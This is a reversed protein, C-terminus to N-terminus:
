SPRVNEMWLAFCLLNWVKANTTPDGDEFVRRLRRVYGLDFIEGPLSDLNRIVWDKLPGHMWSYIPQVFGEKPRQVLDKPLIKEVAKKHIYKNCGNRIKLRGPLKNSFEIIRYDLYPVRVEISHAMSLRDVFPLVQNPLLERQDIELSRNLPDGATLKPELLRYLDQTNPHGCAHLFEQSLLRGREQHSFVSLRSRWQVLDESAIDKLFRFEELGDFPQILILDEADFDQHDKKGQAALTLYNEVPYALRHALYSGFLEDAGDGSLAVKVHKRILISLFYTSVVGSFPEDFACLINPM